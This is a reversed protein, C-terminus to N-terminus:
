KLYNLTGCKKKKWKKILKNKIPSLNGNLQLAVEMADGLPVM